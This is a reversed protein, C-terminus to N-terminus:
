NPKQTNAESTLGPGSVQTTSRTIQLCLATGTVSIPEHKSNHINIKTAGHLEELNTGNDQTSPQRPGGDPFSHTPNQATWVVGSATILPVKPQSRRTQSCMWKSVTAQGSTTRSPMKECITPEDIRTQWDDGTQIQAHNHKQVSADKSNRQMATRLINRCIRDDHTENHHEAVFSRLFSLFVCAPQHKSKYTDAERPKRCKEPLTNHKATDHRKHTTKEHDKKTTHETNTVSRQETQATMVQMLVTIFTRTKSMSLYNPMQLFNGSRPLHKNVNTSWAGNSAKFTTNGLTRM